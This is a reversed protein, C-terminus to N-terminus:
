ILFDDPIHDLRGANIRLPTRRRRLDIRFYPHGDDMSRLADHIKGVLPIRDKAFRAQQLILGHPLTHCGGIGPNVRQRRDEIGSRSHDLDGDGGIICLNRHIHHRPLHVPIEVHKGDAHPLTPYTSRKRESTRTHISERLNLNDVLRAREGQGFGYEDIM